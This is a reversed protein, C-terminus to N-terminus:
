PRTRLGGFVSWSAVLRTRNESISHESVTFEFGARRGAAIAADLTPYRRIGNDVNTFQLLFPTDMEERSIERRVQKASKTM